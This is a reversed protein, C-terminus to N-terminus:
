GAAGLVEIGRDRAARALGADFTAVPRRTAEAVLIPCCDPLKLRTEVRLRALDVAASPTSEWPEIGVARWASMAGAERGARLPAVLAESLNLAHVEFLEDTSLIERARDHHRDGSWLLAILISADLAIL